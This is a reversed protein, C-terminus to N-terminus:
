SAIKINQLNNNIGLYKMYHRALNFHNYVGKIRGTKLCINNKQKSIFHMKSKAQILKSAKVRILPKVSFNRVISKLILQKIENKTYLKKKVMEKRISNIKNREM